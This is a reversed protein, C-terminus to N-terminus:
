ARELIRLALPALDIIRPHSPIEVDQPVGATILPPSSDLVHLSGHSGGGTHAEIGPIVFDYGIKPTAWIHGSRPSDLLGAIREMPNPYSPFHTIGDEERAEGFVGLDGNWSWDTGYRDKLSKEARGQGREFRLKGNETLVHYGKDSTHLRDARVMVQDVREENLLQEIIRRVKQESIDRVYISAVRGNPCIIIDENDQFGKGIEAAPFDPLVQTLDIAAKDEDDVIDSQSHDGTILIAYEELMQEMGGCTEFLKGLYADFQEVTEVANEPGVEHSKFDNNPFYALTFEPLAGRELLEQLVDCTNDDSFGLRDFIQGDVDMQDDPMDDNHTHSTFMGLHLTHPGWITESAPANPVLHLAPVSIEQERNGKYVFWNISAAKGGDSEIREFITPADLWRSNLRVLFDTLFRGPGQRIAMWIDAGFYVVRNEKEEYWYAGMMGHEVPYVGTTISPTAALTLSPFISTCEDYMTGAEVLKQMNKLKGSSMADQVVRSALADVIMLIVKKM